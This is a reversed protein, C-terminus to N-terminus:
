SSRGPHRGHTRGTAPTRTSGVWTQFHKQTFKELIQRAVRSAWLGNRASDAFKAALTTLEDDSKSLVHSYAALATDNPNLFREDIPRSALELIRLYVAQRVGSDMSRIKLQLVSANSDLIREFTRLDSAVNSEADLDPSEIARFIPALEDFVNAGTNGSKEM